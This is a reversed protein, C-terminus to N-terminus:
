ADMLRYRIFGGVQVGSSLNITFSANESLTIVGDQNQFSNDFVFPQKADLPFPGGYATTGDKMQLTVASTPLVTIFDICIKKGAVAAILINDNITSINIDAKLLRDSWNPM